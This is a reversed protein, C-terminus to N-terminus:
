LDHLIQQLDMTSEATLTSATLNGQTDHHHHPFSPLYPFHPANDWRRLPRDTFEQYSYRIHGAIARLRIQFTCGSTLECRIKLLFNDEDIADSDVVQFSVVKPSAQLLAELRPLM